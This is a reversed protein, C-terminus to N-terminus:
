KYHCKTFNKYYTQSSLKGWEKRAAAALKKRMAMLRVAYIQAYQRSFTREKLRFRDSANSYSCSARELRDSEDAEDSVHKPESLFVEAKMGTCKPDTKDAALM